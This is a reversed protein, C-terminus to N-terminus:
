KVEPLQNWDTTYSPTLMGRKMTWPRKIGEALHFLSGRGFRRNIEDMAVSLRDQKEANGFFLVGAKKYRRGEQFIGNLKPRIAHLMESTSSTPTEFTITTAYFGGPLAAPTYEPYYQFYVNVGSALQKERRLKEAARATYNAVAEALHGFSRSCSISKSLEEPDEQEFLPQGRLELATKALTVNFKRRLFGEDASALLWATQLGLAALKPALRRGVGWVEGVPLTALVPRPDDPM